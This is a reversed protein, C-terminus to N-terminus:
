TEEFHRYFSFSFTVHLGMTLYYSHLCATTCCGTSPFLLRTRFGGGYGQSDYSAVLLTGPPIFQIGQEQPIYIRPGPGGPKPLISDSVTFYSLTDRPVRVRSHSLQRPGAAIIFSLCTREDSLAGWMLLGAVTQCYYFDPIAGWM